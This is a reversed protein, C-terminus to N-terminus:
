RPQSAYDACQELISLWSESDQAGPAALLCSPSALSAVVLRSRAERVQAGSFDHVANGVRLGFTPAARVRKGNCKSSQLHHLLEPTGEDSMVFEEGGPVGAERAIRAVM